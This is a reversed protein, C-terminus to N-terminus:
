PSGLRLDVLELVADIVRLRDDQSLERGVASAEDVPDDDLSPPLDDDPFWGANPLPCHVILEGAVAALEFGCAALLRNVTDLSPLRRDREIASINPQSVGSVAALEAQTLKRAVRVQRIFSGYM